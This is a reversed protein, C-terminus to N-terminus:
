GWVEFTVQKSEGDSDVDMIVFEKGANLRYRPHVIRVIKFLDLEVTEDDLPLTLRFRERPVGRLTQQRSAEAVAPARGDINSDIEREVALAHRTQVTADVAETEQRARALVERRAALVGAALGGVDQVTHNVRYRFHHRYSPTISGLREIEGIVDDETIEFEVDVPIKVDWFHAGEGLVGIYSENLNLAPGSMLGLFIQGQSSGSGVPLTALVKYVGEGISAVRASGQVGSGDTDTVTGNVLDIAIGRPQGDKGQMEVYVNTREDGKAYFSLDIFGGDALPFAAPLSARVTHTGSSATEELKDMDMRGDPAVADDTNVTVNTLTWTSLDRPSQSGIRGFYNAHLQPDKLVEFRLIGFRDFGWWAGISNALASLANSGSTYALGTWLGCVASNENDARIIDLRDWDDSFESSTYAHPFYVDIAGTAAGTGPKIQLQNTSAATVSTTQARIRWYGNRCYDVAILTGVSAAVTPKRGLITRVQTWGSIDLQCLVAAGTADFVLLTQNGSTPHARERVWFEVTAVGDATFTVDDRVYREQAASGDTITYAGTGSVPDDVNSGITPGNVADWATLDDETSVNTLNAFGMRTLVDVILQAATMSADSSEATVDATVVGVPSSGLRFLGGAPYARFQGPEPALSDDLLDAESAYTAGPGSSTYVNAENSVGMVLSGYDVSGFAMAQVSATAGWPREFASWSIGDPSTAYQDGSGAWFRGFGYAVASIQGPLGPADRSDWVQGDRSTYVQGTLGVGVIVGAAFLLGRIANSGSFVETWTDGDDDSEHIDGDDTAAYFKGFAYVVTRSDFGGPLNDMAQSWTTGDSSVIVDGGEGVAVWNGAGVAVAYIRDTAAYNSTRETWTIGDPSTALYPATGGNNSGVIVYLGNEEDYAIGNFSRSDSTRRTWTTGDPSTLIQDAGGGAGAVFQQDSESWVICGLGSADTGAPLSRQTLSGEPVIPVGRDFVMDISEVAEDHVQFILRSGNVMLASVNRCVGLAIPKPAGELDVGGELGNPPTNDGDFHDTQILRDLKEQISRIKLLFSGGRPDGGSMTGTFVRQFGGPFVATRRGLYVTADRGSFDWGALYDLDGDENHLSVSGIDVTSAGGTRSVSFANRRIRGPQRLRADFHTDPPTDAPGSTFGRGSSFYLTQEAGALLNYGKVVLLYVWEDNM